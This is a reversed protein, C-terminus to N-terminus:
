IEGIHKEENILLSILDYGNFLFFATISAQHMKIPTLYNYLDFWFLIIM